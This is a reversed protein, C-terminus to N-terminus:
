GRTVRLVAERLEDIPADKAVYAEAQARRAEAYERVHGTLLVVHLGPAVGRLEAIVDRDSDLLDLLVVDPRRHAVEGLTRDLDAAGGVLTIESDDEFKARILERFALSDDCHFVRVM